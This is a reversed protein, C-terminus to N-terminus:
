IVVARMTVFLGAVPDERARVDGEVVVGILKPELVAVVEPDSCQLHLQLTAGLQDAPVHVYGHYIGLELPLERDGIKAISQGGSRVGEEDLVAVM